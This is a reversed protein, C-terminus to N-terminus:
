GIVEIKWVNEAKASMTLRVTPHTGTSSTIRNLLNLADIACASDPGTRYVGESTWLEVRPNGNVSLNMREGGSVKCEVTKDKRSM